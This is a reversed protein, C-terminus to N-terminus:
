EAAVTYRRPGEGGASRRFWESGRADTENLKPDWSSEFM